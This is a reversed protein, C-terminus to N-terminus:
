RARGRPGRAVHARLLTELDEPTGVVLSDDPLLLFAGWAAHLVYHGAAVRWRVISSWPIEGEGDTTRYSVGDEAFEYRVPEYISRNVPSRVQWEVYAWVILLFGVFSYISLVGAGSDGSAVSAFVVATLMPAVYRLRLASLHVLARRYGVETLHVDAVVTATRGEESM